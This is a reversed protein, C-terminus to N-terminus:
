QPPKSEGRQQRFLWDRWNTALIMERPVDHGLGDYVIMRVDGGARELSEEWRRTAQMPNVTDATGAVLLLPTGVVRNALARTPPVPSFAIAGAFRGPQGALAQIATSAGMSFGVIYVRSRDIPLRAELDDVLAYLANLEVGPRSIRPGDVTRGYEVPRKDFQPAVVYAQFRARMVPTAWSKALVGVQAANDTGLQDSGHLMIVLPAPREPTATPVPALIRYPLAGIRRLPSGLTFTGQTGESLADLSLQQDASLTALLRRHELPHASTPPSFAAIGFLVACRFCRKVVM